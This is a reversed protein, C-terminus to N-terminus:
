LREAPTLITALFSRRARIARNIKPIGPWRRSAASLTRIETVFGLIDKRGDPTAKFFPKKLSSPSSTSTMRMFTGFIIVTKHGSIDAISQDEARHHAASEPAHGHARYRTEQVARRM